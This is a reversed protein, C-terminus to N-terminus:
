HILEYYLILQHIINYKIQANKLTISLSLISFIERKSNNDITYIKSFTKNQNIIPFIILDPKINIIILINLKINQVIVEFNKLDIINNNSTIILQFFIFSTEEFIQKM